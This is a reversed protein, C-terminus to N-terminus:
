FSGQAALGAMSPSLAPLVTVARRSEGAGTVYLGIGAALAVAGVGLMVGGTARFVHLNDQTGPNFVYGPVPQDIENFARQALVTFAIGGGILAVGAVALVVGGVKLRGARGADGASAPAPAAPKVEAAPRRAEEARITADVEALADKAETRDAESDTLELYNRLVAAARRLEAVDGSIGYQRRWSQAINWLLKPAHSLQYAGEFSKVAEVFRGATFAAEGENYLRRAEQDPPQAPPDVAYAPGALAVLFSVAAVLRVFSM